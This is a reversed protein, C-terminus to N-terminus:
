RCRAANSAAKGIKGLSADAGYLVRPNVAQGLSAWSVVVESSPDEGWTLHIQEPTGDPAAASAKQGTALSAAALSSLGARLLFDRRSLASPSTERHDSPLEAKPTDTIKESAM